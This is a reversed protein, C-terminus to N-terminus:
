NWEALPQEFVMLLQTVPMIYPGYLGPVLGPKSIVPLLDVEESILVLEGFLVYM